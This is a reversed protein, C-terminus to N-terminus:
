QVSEAARQRELAAAAVGLTVVAGRGGADAIAVCKWLPGPSLESFGEVILARLADRSYLEAELSRAAARDCGELQGVLVLARGLALATQRYGAVAEAVALAEQAEAVRSRAAELPTLETKKAM